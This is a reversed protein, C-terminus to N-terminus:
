VIYTAGASVISDTLTEVSLKSASCPMAPPAAIVSTVLYPVLEILPEANSNKLLSLRFARWNKSGLTWGVLFFMAPPVIPPGM